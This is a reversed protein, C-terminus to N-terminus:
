SFAFFDKMVTFYIDEHNWNDYRTGLVNLSTGLDAGTAGFKCTEACKGCNCLELFQESFILRKTISNVQQWGQGNELYHSIFCWNQWEHYQNVKDKIFEVRKLNLLSLSNVSGSILQIKPFYIFNLMIGM